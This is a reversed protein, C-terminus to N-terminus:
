NKLINALRNRPLNFKKIIDNYTIKGGNKVFKILNSFIRYNKLVDILSCSNEELFENILCDIKENTNQDIDMFLNTNKSYQNILNIYNEDEFMTSLIESKACGCNNIYDKASSYEYDECKLVIFAKVPNQHIYNICKLFYRMGKVSESLYRDKYVHGIQNKCVKNYYIAYSTNVKQMFKSLHEIEKAYILMHMHNDMICYAIVQINFEEKTKNILELYKQKYRREAFIYEDREGHIIVHFFSTDYDKRAVRPM